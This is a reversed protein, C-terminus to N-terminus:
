SSEKSVGNSTLPVVLRFLQIVSWLDDMIRRPITGFKSADATSNNNGTQGFIEPGFIKRCINFMEKETSLGIRATGARGKFQKKVYSDIAHKMALLSSCIVEKSHDFFISTILSSDETQYTRYDARFTQLYQQLSMGSKEEVLKLMAAAEYDGGAM